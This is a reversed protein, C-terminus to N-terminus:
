GESVADNNLDDDMVFRLNLASSRSGTSESLYSKVVVFASLQKQRSVNTSSRTSIEIVATSGGDKVRVSM